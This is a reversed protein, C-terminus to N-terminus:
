GSTTDTFAVSQKLHERDRDIYVLQMWQSSKIALHSLVEQKHAQLGEVELSLPACTGVFQGM